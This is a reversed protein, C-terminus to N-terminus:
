HGSLLSKAASEGALIGTSFATQLNYGGTDGDIDLVEGAFYLGPVLRSEMTKPSIDETSVGGATVVCREYGVYGAIRFEWNKLKKGLKRVDSVPNCRLFGSILSMPMLKGLLINMRAAHSKGLSRSDSSIEKWLTEIRKELSQTEVAPKLDISVRVKSGHEMANVCRRSVKFGVPGEIGGDTFDIDGFEECVPNGDISVKLSINRLQNGALAKGMDSLPHSRDIHGKGPVNDPLIKYGEPVIATLSPFCKVIKHGSEKAWVYGDGTSGTAPYSLGGTTIIVKAAHITEGDKLRVLFDPGSKGIGAVESSTLIAAGSKEAAKVLTDVADAAKGSAPFVRDGREVVTELGHGNFLKITDEPSFNFFAPKIFNAKPHIHLSFDQWGKLNTLNCRGKGSIMIKRGPKPMKELVMIKLGNRGAGIAAALGSAGGGIIVIDVDM